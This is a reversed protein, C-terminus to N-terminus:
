LNYRFFFLILSVTFTVGLVVITTGKVDNWSPWSVKRLESICEVGFKNAAAHRRFKEVVGVMIVMALVASAGQIQLAGLDINQIWFTIVLETVSSFLSYLIFALVVGLGYLWYMLLRQNDTQM